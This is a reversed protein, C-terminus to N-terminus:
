NEVRKHKANFEKLWSRALKRAQGNKKGVLEAFDKVLEFNIEHASKASTNFSMPEENLKRLAETRGSLKSFEKADEPNLIAYGYKVDGTECNINSAICIIPLGRESVSCEGTSPNFKVKRDARLYYVKNM